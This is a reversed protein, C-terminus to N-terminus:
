AMMKQIHSKRRSCLYGKTFCSGHSIGNLQFQPSIFQRQPKRLSCLNLNRLNLRNRFFGTLILSMTGNCMRSYSFKSFGPIVPLVPDSFRNCLPLCDCKRQGTILVTAFRRKKVLQGAGILMHPIKWTYSHVLFFSRDPTMRLSRHRVKRSDVRKGRIGTLLDHCSIKQEIFLRGTNDVNHICGIDFSIEIKGHLQHFQANRHNKSQIHHIFYSGVSAGDPNVFQFLDQPNRYNGNRCHLIFSDVFQDIMRDM